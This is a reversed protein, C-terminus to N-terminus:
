LLTHKIIMSDWLGLLRDTKMVHSLSVTLTSRVYELLLHKKKKFRTAGVGDMGM